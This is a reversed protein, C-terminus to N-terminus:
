YASLESTDGIVNGVREGNPSSWLGMQVWQQRSESCVDAASSSSLMQQQLETGKAVKRTKFMAYGDPSELKYDVVEYIPNQLLAQYATCGATSNVDTLVVVRATGIQSNLIKSMSLQAALASGEVLLADFCDIHNEGKIRAVTREFEEWV